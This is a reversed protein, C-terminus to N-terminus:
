VPTARWGAPSAAALRRIITDAVDRAPSGVDVTLPDEDPDPEELTEIQSQMLTPPMFHGRRGMLHEAILDRGGRLYVLRVEPRSGVVVQRYSRKLASCTIIGPQRAARRADIWAAVRALWPERDADTLPIGAHMKAINAEPHLADGEEFPWGLRARLELAVTSKGAGSLGMVLLIPPSGRHARPSDLRHVGAQDAVIVPDARSIFLGCEVVGVVHRIRRELRAPDSLPGFSCDLIRNGGDTAFPEGDPAKRLRTSAGLAELSARTAELGFGVVEVPVPALTGLRDALKGADAVIALRHSAAAVIKERLLAGGLGKILNLTGREVEDAGDITLDIQRHEAFTTLPLGAARAAAATRESTPIGLFRLGQRHRRALAELAFAATSGTGLGVVMGNEVLEVAAEAAARKVANRGADAPTGSASM